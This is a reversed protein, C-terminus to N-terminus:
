GSDDGTALDSQTRGGPSAVQANARDVHLAVILEAEARALGHTRM